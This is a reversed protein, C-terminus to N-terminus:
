HYRIGLTPILYCVFCYHLSKFIFFYYTMVVQLLNSYWRVLYLCYCYLSIWNISIFIIFLGVLSEFIFVLEELYQNQSCTFSFCLLYILWWEFRRFYLCWLDFYFSSGFWSEIILYLSLSMKLSFIVEPRKIWIMIWIQINYLIILCCISYYRM